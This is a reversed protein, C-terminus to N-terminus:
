TPKRDQPDTVAVDDRRPLAAPPEPSSIVRRCLELLRARDLPKTTYETCGAELCKERDGAMAHATLAIIPITCGTERLRRTAQYGDLVPMQMDMLIVDYPRGDREAEAVRECGELGNSAVEVVAGGRKLMASVLTQNLKVDEVLLVNGIFTNPRQEAQKREDAEHDASRSEYDVLQAGELEGIYLRFTFTSGVGVESEVDIDGGLMQALRRSITLGLGAGGASRTSSGDLQNFADFLQELSAEPIGVGTDKVRFVLGRHALGEDGELEIELRVRGKATFKIANGVLNLLIQRVRVPDSLIRDPVASMLELELALGQEQAQTSLLTIVERGVEVPAFERASVVMRNAEVRSIDLIDNLITLLHEGSRRIIYGYRKRSELDVENECLLDVYGLIANMPTRIEHSMNALFESKARNAAEARLNAEKLRQMNARDRQVVNWKETLAGALQRVEVPDFPKKLIILQHSSGVTEVIEDFSYDSFATCIVVELDPDIEWLKLITQMGDLGPPMRIDVFAMAFRDGRSTAKELLEVGEEGQNASVLDFTPGVTKTEEEGFFASRADSPAADKSGGSLIKRFDQHISDQDDIVLIRRNDTHEM